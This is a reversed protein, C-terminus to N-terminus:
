TQPEAGLGLDALARDRDFYTVLRTVKGHRMHLVSATKGGMQEVDMGSVKGRGTNRALVLVRDDDLERLEEVEVRWDEWSGLFERWGEGAAALGKWSTPAPGDVVVLELGPDAWEVSSWDGREWAAYISRVLKLNASAM